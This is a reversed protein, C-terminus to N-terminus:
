GLIDGIGQHLYERHPVAGHDILKHDARLAILDPFFTDSVTEHFENEMSVWARFHDSKLFQKSAEEENPYTASPLFSPFLM